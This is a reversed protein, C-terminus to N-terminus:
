TAEQVGLYPMLIPDQRQEPLTDPLYLGADLGPFPNLRLTRGPDLAITGTATVGLPKGTELVNSVEVKSVTLGQREMRTKYWAERATPSKSGLSERAALAAAGVSTQTMSVAGAEGTADIEFAYTRTNAKPMSVAVSRFEAQWNVSNMVVARTGEYPYPLEGPPVLRNMPDLWIGGQGPEDVLLLMHTFQYPTRTEPSVTWFRRDSVLAVKPQLGEESLIHFLLRTIGPNDTFGERAAFDLDSTGMGNDVRQRAGAPPKEDFLLDDLNRVRALVRETIVRAKERPGGQLDKRVEQSLARYGSGKSVLNTFWNRYFMDAVKAWYAAAPAKELHQIGEIPRHFLVKPTPRNVEISYPVLPAAPLNRFTFTDGNSTSGQQMSFGAPLMALTWFVERGRQVTVSQTPYAGGLSAYWFNGCREPLNGLDHLAMRNQNAKGRATAERWFLDVVCDATLGPPVLVGEKQSGDRTSVVTRVLFDQRKGISQVRGDPYTVQGELFLLDAPMDPFEAAAQGAQSLIRIRITQDFHFPQFDLKRDVIVAGQAVLAADDRLAWVEKPISPFGAVLAPAATLALCLCALPKM